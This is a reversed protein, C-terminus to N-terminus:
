VRNHITMRTDRLDSLFVGVRLLSRSVKGIKQFVDSIRDHDHTESHGIRRVCEPNEFRQIIPTEIERRHIEDFVM